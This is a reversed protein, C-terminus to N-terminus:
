PTDEAKAAHYKKLATEAEQAMEPVLAGFDEPDTIPWCLLWGHINDLAEALEDTLTKDTM